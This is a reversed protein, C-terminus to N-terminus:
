AVGPVLLTIKRTRFPREFLGRSNIGANGLNPVIQLLNFLFQSLGGCPGALNNGCFDKTKLGGGAHRNSRFHRGSPKFKGNRAGNIRYVKQSQAGEPVKQVLLTFLISRLM